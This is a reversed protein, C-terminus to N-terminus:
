FFGVSLNYEGFTCDGGYKLALLWCTEKSLIIASSTTFIHCTDPNRDFGYATCGVIHLITNLGPSLIRPLNFFFTDGDGSILLEWFHHQKQLPKTM